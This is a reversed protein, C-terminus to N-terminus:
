VPVVWDLWALVEPEVVELVEVVDLDLPSSPSSLAEDLVVDDRDLVDFWDEFWDLGTVCDFLVAGWAVM